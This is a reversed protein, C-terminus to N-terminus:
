ADKEEMENFWKKLKKKLKIEKKRKKLIEPTLNLIPLKNNKLHDMTATILTRRVDKETMVKHLLYINVYKSLEEQSVDKYRQQFLRFLKMYVVTSKIEEFNKFYKDVIKDKEKQMQKIHKEDLKKNELPKYLEELSNHIVSGITNYAITEEMQNEDPIELITQYYFSLPNRIYNILMSATFGKNGIEDLKKLINSNKDIEIQQKKIIPTKAVLIKHNIKHINEIELQRIFRSM